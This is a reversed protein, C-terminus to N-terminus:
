AFTNVDNTLNIPSSYNRALGFDALRIQGDPNILLNSPKLDRHLTFHSHCYAIATLLQQMYCKIHETRLYISKNYIIKMLDTPCFEM